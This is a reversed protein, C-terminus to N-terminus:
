KEVLRQTDLAIMYEEDTPIVFTKVRAGEASIDLETISVPLLSVLVNVVVLAILLLLTVLFVRLGNQSTKQKYDRMTQNM